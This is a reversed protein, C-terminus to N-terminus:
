NMQKRLLNQYTAPLFNIKNWSNLINSDMKVRGEIKKKLDKEGYQEIALKAALRSEAITGVCDFPKNATVGTLTNIHDVLHKNRFYDSGFIKILQGRSIFPSLALYSFACKACNGCWINAKQGANCSKFVGFYKPSRAFIKTVQLEYLPRLFSFYNIQASLYKSCYNRFLKEFRTSKSYQHNVEMDHYRINVEDASRENSVIVNQYNLLAAALTGLFALYASFPTHGNLYGHSNLDLLKPDIERTAILLKTYGALKAIEIASRTPNLLFVERKQKSKKLLELTVASDIGGGVLILDGNPKKLDQKKFRTKSELKIKLFDKPRFDIKNQYFFEGLGHIFLDRWWSIQEVTLFGAKIVFEKPCAAKWYSISEVLGLNFAFVKLSEASIKTDCPISIKPKFFINPELKFLYQVHITNKSKTIDFSEYVFRAHKKRLQKLTLPM